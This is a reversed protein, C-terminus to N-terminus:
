PSGDTLTALYAVIDRAETEGVGLNPMASRPRISQPDRIWRVLNQPTNALSGAVMARSALGTLPPGVTHDAGAVGPIVHCTACMYQAILFKGKQADPAHAPLAPEMIPTPPVTPAQYQAPTMSAMNKLFATLDVIQGDTLRFEWAPMATLRVGHKIVWFLENAPWERGDQALNTPLPRLGRAFPDPPVGPGGHCQQCHTRFLALGQAIRTRDELGDLHIDHARARVSRKMAFHMAYYGISTHPETAAVDYFGYYVLAGGVATGIAGLAVIWLAIRKIM